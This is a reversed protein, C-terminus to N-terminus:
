LAAERQCRGAVPVRLTLSAVPESLSNGPRWNRRPHSRAAGDVPPATKRASTVHAPQAARRVAPRANSPRCTDQGADGASRRSATVYDRLIAEQHEAAILADDPVLIDALANLCSWFEQADPMPRCESAGALRIDMAITAIRNAPYCESAPTSNRAHSVAEALQDSVQQPPRDNCSNKPLGDRSGLAGHWVLGITDSAFM